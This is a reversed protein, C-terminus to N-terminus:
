TRSTTRSCGTARACAARPAHALARPQTARQRRTPSQRELTQARQGRGAQDRGAHQERHEQAQLADRRSRDAHELGLPAPPDDLAIRKGSSDKLGMGLHKWVKLGQAGARIDDELLRAVREPYGPDDLNSEDLNTFAAFRQPFRAKQAASFERFRPGGGGRVPSNM